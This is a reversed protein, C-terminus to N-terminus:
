QGYFSLDLEIKSKVMNETRSNHGKIEGFYSNVKTQLLPLADKDYSCKRGTEVLILIKVKESFYTNKAMKVSTQM